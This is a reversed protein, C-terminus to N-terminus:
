KRNTSRLQKPMASQTAMTEQPPPPSLRPEELPPEPEPVTVAALLTTLTVTEPPGLLL